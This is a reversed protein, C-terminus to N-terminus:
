YNCIVDSVDVVLQRGWTQYQVTGDFGPNHDIVVNRVNDTDVIVHSQIYVTLLLSQNEPHKTSEYTWHETTASVHNM